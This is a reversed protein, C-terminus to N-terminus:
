GRYKLLWDLWRSPAGSGGLVWGLWLAAGVLGFAAVYPVAAKWGRAPIRM